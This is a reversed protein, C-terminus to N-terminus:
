GSFPYWSISIFCSNVLTSEVKGGNPYFELSKFNLILLVNPIFSNEIELRLDEATLYKTLNALIRFCQLRRWSNQTVKERM